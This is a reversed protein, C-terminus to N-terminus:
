KGICVFATPKGANAGELNVTGVYVRGGHLIPGGYVMGPAKVPDGGLDLRWRERGDNLGIAHVVGSLDAAYAVGGVVAPPAFFPTKADYIWKREGSALDFARVKGDTATTVAVGDGLAVSGVIGGPVEKRWKPTGTALDFGAIEGKAGKIQQPYYGITSGAVVVLDGLVSAGGWPNLALKQRWQEKGTKADLCILAREGVGEKDLFASAVLVREGAVNVPADVHWQGNGQQWVLVPSPKPLQDESPPVALMPDKRKEAEYKAQLEKWRDDLLKRVAAEDLERGDLTTRGLEVCVVGAAGGGIFARGGAVTPAGELHVLAGPFPRQWLPLGKELGLCHLVAGADQHMGDGFVIKNGAVAPSSVVPLKLYPTSRTWVAAPPNSKPEMPLAMVSAVNFAGLGSVVVTDGAPVPSAVFHDKSPLAWLVKPAAPGAVGDACGTRAPNGRYTSWPEASQVVSVCLCLSSLLSSLSILVSRRRSM